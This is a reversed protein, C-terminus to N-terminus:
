SMKIIYTGSSSAFLLYHLIVAIIIISLAIVFHCKLRTFRMDILAIINLYEVHISFIIHLLIFVINVIIQEPLHKNCLVLWTFIQECKYNSHYFYIKVNKKKKNNFYFM